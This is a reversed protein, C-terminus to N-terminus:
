QTSPLAAAGHVWMGDGSVSHLCGHFTWCGLLTHRAPPTDGRGMHRPGRECNCGHATPAAHASMCARRARTAFLTICRVRCVLCAAFRANWVQTCQVAHRQSGAKRRRHMSHKPGIVGHVHSRPGDGGGGAGCCVVGVAGARRGYGRTSCALVGAVRRTNRCFRHMAPLVRACRQSCQM